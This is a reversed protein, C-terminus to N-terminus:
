KFSGVMPVVEKLLDQSVSADAWSRSVGNESHSLQGEAGMRDYLDIAIRLQLDAYRDPVTETGDGYPYRRTVIAQGASNLLDLILTDNTEETRVKFRELLEM